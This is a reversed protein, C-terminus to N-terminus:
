TLRSLLGNALPERTLIVRATLHPLPSVWSWLEGMAWVLQRGERFYRALYLMLAEAIEQCAQLHM